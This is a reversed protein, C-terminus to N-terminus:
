RSKYRFARLKPFGSGARESWYDNFDMTWLDNFEQCAQADFNTNTTLPNDEGPVEIVKHLEQKTLGYPIRRNAAYVLNHNTELLDFVPKEVLPLNDTAPSLFISTRHWERSHKEPRTTLYCEQESAPDQNPKLRTLTLDGCGIDFGYLVGNHELEVACDLHVACAKGKRFQELAGKDTMIRLYEKEKNKYFIGTALVGTDICPYLHNVDGEAIIDLFNRKRWKESMEQEDWSTFYVAELVQNIAPIARGVAESSFMEMLKPIVENTRNAM